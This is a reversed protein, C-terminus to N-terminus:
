ESTLGVANLTITPKIWTWPKLMCAIIPGRLFHRLHTQIIVPILKRRAHTAHNQPISLFCHGKFPDSICNGTHGARNRCSWNRFSSLHSPWLLNSGIFTLLLIVDFLAMFRIRCLCSWCRFLCNSCPIALQLNRDIQNIDKRRKIAQFTFKAWILEPLLFCVMHMM